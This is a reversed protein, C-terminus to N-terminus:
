NKDKNKRLNKNIDNVLIQIDCVFFVYDIQITYKKNELRDLLTYKFILSGPNSFCSNGKKSVKPESIIVYRFFEKDSYIEKGLNEKSIIENQIELYSLTNELEISLEEINNDLLKEEKLCHKAIGNNNKCQKGFPKYAEFLIATNKFDISDISITEEQSFVQSNIFVVFLSLLLPYITKKM